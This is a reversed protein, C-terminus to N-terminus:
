CLERAYSELFGCGVCRFTKLWRREKRWTKVGGLLAEQPPGKVWCGVLNAGHTHDLLFGEEMQGGCKSCIPTQTEM